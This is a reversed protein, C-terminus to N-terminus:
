RHQRTLFLSTDPRLPQMFTHMVIAIEYAVVGSNHVATSIVKPPTIVFVFDVLPMQGARLYNRKLKVPSKRM